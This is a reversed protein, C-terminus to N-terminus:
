FKECNRWPSRPFAACADHSHKGIVERALRRHEKEKAKGQMIATRPSTINKGRGQLPSAILPPM